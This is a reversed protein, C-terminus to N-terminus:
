EELPENSNQTKLTRHKKSATKKMTKNNDNKVNRLRVEAMGNERHFVTVIDPYKKALYQAAHENSEFREKTKKGLGGDSHFKTKITINNYRLVGGDKQFYLISQEFDEKEKIESSPQLKPDHRNIFGYMTGLIFKLSTTINNKMFFPNSVPYIGWLYLKEKDLRQFAEKFFTDVNKIKVLKTTGKARFVGEVDDDLSVIKKGEPFYKIIFKRQKTIGKVGVIIKGYMSNPIAKEYEKEEETNAVFIHIKSPSVGGDILTKLSKEQLIHQRKYSPIVVIYDSM